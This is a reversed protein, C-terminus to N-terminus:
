MSARKEGQLIMSFLEAWDKAYPEPIHQRPLADFSLTGRMFATLAKSWADPQVPDLFKVKGYGDLVEHAYPLDSAFIAKGTGMFESLPMGWSELRSPFLLAECEGYLAFVAERSQRGIFRLGDIKGYKRVIDKAYSGETGDMTLVIEWAHDQPIRKAAECLVEVNKYTHATVPYFFLRKGMSNQPGWAPVYSGGQPRAVIVNSLGYMHQFAERMWNQQVIIATNRHIGIRYLYKYFLVFLTFTIDRTMERWAMKYFPAANHCYVFQRPVRVLPTTDHMSIWIDPKWRKALGAFYVYEYYCRFLWSRKAKSYAFFSLRVDTFELFLAVDHVLAFIRVDDCYSLLARICDKYVSLMGGSVINVGSLVVKM